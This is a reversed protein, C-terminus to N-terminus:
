NIKILKVVKKQDGNIVEVFYAGARWNQGITLNSGAALRGHQEVMRGAMDMVRLSVASGNGGKIALTFNSTSPNPYAKVGLEGEALVEPENYEMLPASIANQVISACNIPTVSSYPNAFNLLGTTTGGPIAYLAYNLPTGADSLTIFPSLFSLLGDTPKVELGSNGTFRSYVTASWKWDIKVDPKDIRVDMTWTVNKVGKPLNHPLKYSLGTMFVNDDFHSNVKTVWGENTYDTSSYWINNSFQIHSNPVNLTYTVNNLKYTIRSNTININVTGNGLNKARFVSSFWLYKGASVTYNNFHQSKSTTIFCDSVEPNVTVIVNQTRSCGNAILTYVYTVNVASSSSNVLTENINGNGSAAPNSIGSVQARTWSFSTGPISSTPHYSFVDGTNVTNTVDSTLAPLPNVILLAADSSVSGAGNSWVARYQKNNDSLTAVFSLTSNTAGNVNNWTTGNTSVQWQVSTGGNSESTFTATAGSCVEEDAPHLTVVPTANTCHISINNFAPTTYVDNTTLFVRYQIYRSTLNLQDGSNSVPTFASWTGDPIPTNGTRVVVSIDTGAPTSENWVVNTWTRASGADFVRSTFSGANAYPTVRIWDVSLDGDGTLLDSIQLVMNSGVTFPLTVSAAVGGDVEIDFTNANWRLLYHHASGLLPGLSIAPGNSFRAYVNGDPSGQGITVWPANFPQDISLGVNQFAGMNFTGVFEIVSGPGFSNDTTIHTGNVTVSGGSFSTTGSADFNENTWGAPLSAGSFDESLGPRLIVSGDGNVFTNAGTSGLNFDASTQDSFCVPGNQAFCLNSALLLLAVFMARGYQLFTFSRYM